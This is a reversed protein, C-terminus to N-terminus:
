LSNVPAAPELSLGLRSKLIWELRDCSLDWSYQKRVHNSCQRASEKLQGPNELAQRLCEILDPLSGTAFLRGSGHKALIRNGGIDSAVFPIGCASAELLANSFNEYRSPILMLDMARYWPPLQPHNVYPEIHVLGKRVEAALTAQLAGNDEGSGIVLLRAHSHMQAIEHFAAALMDSGKLHTLRGVYGIVYHDENWNLLSRVNEKGPSFAESDIGISLESV